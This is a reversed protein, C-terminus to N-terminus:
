KNVADYDEEEWGCMSGKKAFNRDRHYDDKM